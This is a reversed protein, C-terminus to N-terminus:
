FLHKFREKITAEDHGSCSEPDPTVDYHRATSPIAKYQQKLVANSVDGFSALLKDEDQIVTNALSGLGTYDKGNLMIHLKKDGNAVYLTGDPSQLFDPGLTWGLNTFFQGWTTAEDEVHVVNNVNDHMHARESPIAEKEATCMETETYYQKSKFEERKSNIYVAFNAHYHVAEPKYTFFRIGLVVAAGLLLCSAAIFWKNRVFQLNKASV